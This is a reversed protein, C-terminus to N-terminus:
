LWEIKVLKQVKKFEPDGAVIHANEKIVTVVTFCDAYSLPYCEKLNGINLTSKTITIVDSKITISM